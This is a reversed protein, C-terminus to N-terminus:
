KYFNCKIYYKTFDQKKETVYQKSVKKDIKINYKLALDEVIKKFDKTNDLNNKLAYLSIIDYNTDCSFCKIINRTSDYSMSPHKDEHQPNVCNFLKHTSLGLEQLYDGLHEKVKQIVQDNIM